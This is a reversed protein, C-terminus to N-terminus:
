LVDEGIVLRNGVTRAHLITTRGCLTPMDCWRWPTTSIESVRGGSQPSKGHTVPPMAVLQNPFSEAMTETPLNPM